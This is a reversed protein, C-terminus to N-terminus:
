RQLIHKVANLVTSPTILRMCDHTGKKCSGLNCGICPLDNMRLVTHVNGTPMWRDKNTPGMFSITPIHVAVAVHLPGSNNCILLSCRSVLAAFSRLDNGIYTPVKLNILSCIWDVLHKDGQGGFIVVDAEINDQIQNVLEAFNEIPWRQSEYYAGPHIGVIPKSGVGQKSLWNKAWIKEDETLVIEPNISTGEIGLPKLVDLTIDVFPKNEKPSSVKINFFVERGYSIYGLRIRAGSLLAILATILEYDPYPDIALDFSYKRLERLCCLKEGLKQRHDYIIVQDVYPNNSLVSCNAPSALVTLQAHPFAQKIARLAPTSLVLDGIRDIRIFLIKQIDEGSVFNRQKSNPILIAVVRLAYKRFNLYINKLTDKMLARNTKKPPLSSRLRM